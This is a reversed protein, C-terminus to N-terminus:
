DGLEGWFFAFEACMAAALGLCILSVIAARWGTVMKRRTIPVKRTVLGKCGFFVTFPILVSMGGFFCFYLMITPHMRAEHM